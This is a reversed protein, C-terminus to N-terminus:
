KQARAFNAARIKGKKVSREQQRPTPESEALKWVWEPYEADELQM